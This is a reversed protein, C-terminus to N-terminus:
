TLRKEVDRFAFPVIEVAPFDGFVERYFEEQTDYCAIYLSIISGMRLLSLINDIRKIDCMFLVVTPTRAKNDDKWVGDYVESGHRDIEDDNLVARAFQRRPEDLSRYLRLQDHGDRSLPFALQEKYIKSTSMLTQRDRRDEASYTLMRTVADMSDVFVIATDLPEHVYEDILLARAKKEIGDQWNIGRGINFVSYNKKGHVYLGYMRSLKLGIDQVEQKIDKIDTFGERIKSQTVPESVRFAMRVESTKAGRMLKRDSSIHDDPQDAVGYHKKTEKSLWIVKKGYARGSKVYGGEELRCAARQITIRSKNMGIALQDLTCRNYMLLMDVIEKSATSNRFSIYRSGKKGKWESWEEPTLHKEKTM